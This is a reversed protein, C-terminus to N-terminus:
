NIAPILSKRLDMSTDLNKFDVTNLFISYQCSLYQIIEYKFVVNCTRKPQGSTEM